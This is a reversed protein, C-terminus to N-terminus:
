VSIKPYRANYRTQPPKAPGGKRMSCAIVIVKLGKRHGSSTSDGGRGSVESGVEEPEEMTDSCDGSFGVSDKHSNRDLSESAFSTDHNADSMITATTSLTPAQFHNPLFFTFIITVLTNLLPCRKDGTEEPLLCDNIFPLDENLLDALPSVWGFTYM